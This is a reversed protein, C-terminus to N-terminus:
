LQLLNDERLEQEAPKDEGAKSKLRLLWRLDMTHVGKNLDMDTWSEGSGPDSETAVFGQDRNLPVEFASGEYYGSSEEEVGMKDEKNEPAHEDKVTEAKLYQATSAPLKAPLEQSWPMEPSQYTVCNAQDGNPNCRVFQYSAKTPVGKGNHLALCSIVLLLLLKM